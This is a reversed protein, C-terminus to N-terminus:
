KKLNITVSIPCHDSGFIDAHIHAQTIKKNLETDAFLYDIRWGRNVERPKTGKPLSFDFNDWYTYAGEKNVNRSRYTDVLDNGMYDTLLTRVTHNFHTHGEYKEPEALDLASHAINFDGGIVVMRKTKILRKAHEGLKKIFDIKQVYHEDSKGGNPIYVSIVTIGNNLDIQVFRGETDKYKSFTNIQNEIMSAYQRHVWVATGSYGAKQASHYVQTYGEYMKQEETLQDEKVKVEQLLVIDPKEKTIFEQISGKKFVARLGNVNWSYIKM